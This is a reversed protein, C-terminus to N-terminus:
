MESFKPFRQPQGAFISFKIKEVISMLNPINHLYVGKVYMAHDHGSYMAYGGHVRIYQQFQKKTM